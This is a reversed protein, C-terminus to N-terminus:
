SALSPSLEEMPMQEALPLEGDASPEPLPRSVGTITNVWCRAIPLMFENADLKKIADLTAPVPEGEEEMNWGELHDAFLELLDRVLALQEQASYASLDNLWTFDSRELVDEISLARMSIVLGAYRENDGFDIEYIHRPIVYGM